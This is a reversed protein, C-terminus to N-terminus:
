RTHLHASSITSRAATSHRCHTAIVKKTDLITYIISSTDLQSLINKDFIIYATKRKKVKTRHRKAKAHVTEKNVTRTEGSIIERHFFAQAPTRRM